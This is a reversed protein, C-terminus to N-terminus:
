NTLSKLDDFFYGIENNNNLNVNNFYKNNKNNLNYIVNRYDKNPNTMIELELNKIDPNKLKSPIHEWSIVLLNPITFIVVFGNNRLKEICYEACKIQDYKPLGYIIKPIVYVCASEGKKASLKIKNHCKKLITRYTKIKKILNEDRKKNLNFINIM